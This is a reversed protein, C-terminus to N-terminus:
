PIDHGFHAHQEGSALCKSPKSEWFIVYRRFCVIFLLLLLIM